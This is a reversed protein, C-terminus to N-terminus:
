PCLTQSKGASTQHAWINWRRKACRCVMDSNDQQGKNNLVGLNSHGLYRNRTSLDQQLCDKGRTPRLLLSYQRLPLLSINRLASLISRTMWRARSFRDFKNKPVKCIPIRQCSTNNASLQYGTSRTGRQNSKGAANQLGFASLFCSCQWTCPGNAAHTPGFARVTRIGPNSVKDSKKRGQINVIENRREEGGIVPEQKSIPRRLDPVAPDQYPEGTSVVSPQQRRVAPKHRWQQPISWTRWGPSEGSLISIYTYAPAGNPPYSLCLRLVHLYLSDKERFM